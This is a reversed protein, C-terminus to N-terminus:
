GGPFSGGAGMPYSAPNAGPGTHVFIVSPESWHLWKYNSM